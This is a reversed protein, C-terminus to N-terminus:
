TQQGCLIKTLGRGEPGARHGRGLAPKAGLVRDRQFQLAHDRVDLSPLPIKNARFQKEPVGEGPLHPQRRRVGCNICRGACGHRSSSGTNAGGQRGFRM